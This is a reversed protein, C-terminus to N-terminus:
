RSNRFISANGASFGPMSPGPALDSALWDLAWHRWYYTAGFPAGCGIVAAVGAAIPIWLGASLFLGAAADILLRLSHHPSEALGSVGDHFLAIATGLRRGGPTVPNVVVGVRRCLSRTSRVTSHM